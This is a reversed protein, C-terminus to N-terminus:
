VLRVQRIAKTELMAWAGNEDYNTLDIVDTSNLIQFLKRFM